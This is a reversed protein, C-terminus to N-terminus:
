IGNVTRFLNTVIESLTCSISALSKSTLRSPSLAEISNFEANKVYYTRAYIYISNIGSSSVTKGSKSINFFGSAANALRISFVDFINGKTLLLKVLNDLTLQDM